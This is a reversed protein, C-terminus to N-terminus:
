KKENEQIEKLSPVMTITLKKEEITITKVHVVKCAIGFSEINSPISDLRDVGIAIHIKSNHPLDNFMQLVHEIEGDKRSGHYVFIGSPQDKMFELFDMQNGVVIWLVKKEGSVLKFM